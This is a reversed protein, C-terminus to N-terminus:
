LLCYLLFLHCVVGNSGREKETERSMSLQFMSLISDGNCNLAEKKLGVCLKSVAEKLESILSLGNHLSQM